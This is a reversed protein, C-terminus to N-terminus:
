VPRRRRCHYAIHWGASCLACLVAIKGRVRGPADMILSHRERWLATSGQLLLRDIVLASSDPGIRM